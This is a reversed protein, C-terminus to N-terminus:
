NTKALRNQQVIHQVSKDLCSDCMIASIGKERFFPLHNALTNKQLQEGKTTLTAGTVISAIIKKASTETTNLSAYIYAMSGLSEKDKGANDARTAINNIVEDQNETDPWIEYSGKHVMDRYEKSKDAKKQLSVEKTYLIVQKKQEALEKLTPLQSGTFLLGGLYDKILKLTEEQYSEQFDDQHPYDYKINIIIVERDNKALFQKIKGLEHDLKQCLFTHALYIQEDNGAAVRFDFLRIGQQLQEEITHTQTKAFMNIFYSFVPWTAIRHWWKNEGAPIVGSFQYAGSDHSGPILLESISKNQTQEDLAKMWASTIKNLFSLQPWESKPIVHKIKTDFLSVINQNDETYYEQELLEKFLLEHQKLLSAIKQQEKTSIGFLREFVTEKKTSLISEDSSLNIRYGPRIAEDIFKKM